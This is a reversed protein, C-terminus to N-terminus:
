SRKRKRRTSPTVMVACADWEIPLGMLWRSHAPHLQGGGGMGASSGTLMKGTATLRAPGDETTWNVLNVQGDLLEGKARNRHSSMKHDRATPTVWGALTTLQTLSSGSMNATISGAREGDTASPTTWGALNAQHCLQVQGKGTRSGLKADVTNPTRWGSLQATTQLSWGGSKLRNDIAFDPGAEAARPTPWGSLHVTDELRSKKDFM